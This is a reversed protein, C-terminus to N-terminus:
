PKKTPFHELDWVLVTSDSLSAALLKGSHSFEVAYARSPLEIRAVESLDPVKRLEIRNREDVVTAAVLRTDPAFAVPGAGGGDVDIQKVLKGDALHRLEVPHKKAQRQGNPLREIGWIATLLYRGDTSTAIRVGPNCKLDIRPLEEGTRVAFCRVDNLAVLLTRADASFLGGWLGADIGANPEGRRVSDFDFDIGAPQLRSEQVAKGTSVDWIYLRMDDGWSALLKGDSTFQVARCGGYHGHGPLRYVEKGTATQWVRVTDDCSSSAVYKGDPSVDMARLIRVPYNPDLPDHQMVRVQRSDSLNWIRVTGDDGATALQRDGPLFRITNPPRVHGPLDAGLPQGTAVNWVCMTSDWMCSAALQRGDPSFTLCSADGLLGRLRNVLKGTAVDWLAVGGGSNLDNINAALLKGDPSFTITRFTWYRVGPVSYNRLLKGSAVDFLLVGKAESDPSGAAITTGDPSLAIASVWRGSSRPDHPIPISFPQGGGAWPWILVRDPGGIALIFGDPSFALSEIKGGAMDKNLLEAGNSTDVLHLTRDGYALTRGDPSLALRDRDGSETTTEFKQDGTAQDFAALFNVFRQREGDVAETYFGCAAVLGGGFAAPENGFDHKSIRRERVLRGSNPDFSKLRGDRTIQVLTKGADAFTMGNPEVGARFRKTGLRAIAGTPLPDGDIDQGKAAGAPESSAVAPKDEAWAAGRRSGSPTPAGTTVLIGLAALRMLWRGIPCRIARM